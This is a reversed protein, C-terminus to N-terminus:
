CIFSITESMRGFYDVAMKRHLALTKYGAKRLAGEGCVTVHGFRKFWDGEPVIPNEEIWHLVQM